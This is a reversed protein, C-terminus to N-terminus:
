VGLLVVLNRPKMAAMASTATGTMPMMLAWVAVASGFSVVGLADHVQFPWVVLSPPYWVSVLPVLQALYLHTFPVQTFSDEHSPLQM